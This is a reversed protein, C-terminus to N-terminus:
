AAVGFMAWLKEAPTPEPTKMTLVEYARFEKDPRHGAHLVMEAKAEDMTDFTHSCACWGRPHNLIEVGYGVGNVASM